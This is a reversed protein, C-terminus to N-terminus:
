SCTKTLGQNNVAHIVAAERLANLNSWCGEMGTRHQQASAHCVPIVLCHYLLCQHHYREDPPPHRPPPPRGHLMEQAISGPPTHSPLITHPSHTHASAAILACLIHTIGAGDPCCQLPATSHPAPGWVPPTRHPKCAHRQTTLLQPPLNQPHPTM